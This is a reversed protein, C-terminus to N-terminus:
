KSHLRDHLRRPIPLCPQLFIRAPVKHSFSNKNEHLRVEELAPGIAIHFNRHPARIPINLQLISTFVNLRAAVGASVM